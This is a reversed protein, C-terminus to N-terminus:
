LVTLYGDRQILLKPRSQVAIELALKKGTRKIDVTYSDDPDLM